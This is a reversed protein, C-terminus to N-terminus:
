SKNESGADTAPEIGGDTAAEIAVTAEAEPMTEAGPDLTGKAEAGEINANVETGPEVEDTVWRLSAIMQHAYGMAEDKGGELWFVIRVYAGHDETVLTITDYVLGDFAIESLYTYYEVGEEVHTDVRGDRAREVLARTVDELSEAESKPILYVDFDVYYENSGFSAVQFVRREEEQIEEEFYSNHVDIMLSTGPLRLPRTEEAPWAHTPAGVSGKADRNRTLWGEPLTGRPEHGGGCAALALTAAVLMALKRRRM